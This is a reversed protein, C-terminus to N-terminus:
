FTKKVSSLLKSPINVNILVKGKNVEVLIEQEIRSILCNLSRFNADKADFM